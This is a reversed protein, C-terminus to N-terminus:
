NEDFDFGSTITRSYEIDKRIEEDTKPAEEKDDTNVIEIDPIHQQIIKDDRRGIKYGLWVGALIGFMTTVHTILEIM